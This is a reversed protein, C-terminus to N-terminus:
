IYQGTPVQGHPAGSAKPSGEDLLFFLEALTPPEKLQHEPAGLWARAEGLPFRTFETTALCRGPRTLAPHLRGLPENTTLLVVVKNGQGLVGDSVNLLRGLPGDVGNRAARLYQDTDEAVVLKWRTPDHAAERHSIVEHLYGPNQFLHDPDAVHHADCWPQWERMLARIATSKGTGPDGHWLILRGQGSPRRLAMLGALEARAAAPYNRAIEPWTPAELDIPESWGFGRLHQHWARVRVTNRPEAVDLAACLRDIVARVEEESSGNVIVEGRTSRRLALIWTNGSELLATESTATGARRLLVANTDVVRDLDIPCEFVISRAFPFRGELQPTVFALRILDEPDTMPGVSVIPSIPAVVPARDVSM